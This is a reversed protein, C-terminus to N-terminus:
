IGGLLRDYEGKIIRYCECSAKELGARDLITIQGRTYSILGAQQLMGAAITVTPRQVGLMQGLFEQTLPFSKSDVRDHTQLLWRACREQVEHLRNCSTIQAIQNMLALAYRMLVARFKAHREVLKQFTDAHMRLGEGPIQMLARSPMTNIGLLLSLGVVGEHGVTAFEVIQGPAPENVLSAVGNSVFYAHTIPQDKDYLIKKLELPVHEIHNTADNLEEQPLAQLLLNRQM